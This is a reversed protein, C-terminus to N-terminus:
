SLREGPGAHGGHAAGDMWETMRDEEPVQLELLSCLTPVKVDPAWVAM